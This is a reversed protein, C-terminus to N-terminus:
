NGCNQFSNTLGIWSMRLCFIFKHKIQLSFDNRLIICLNHNNRNKGWLSCYTDWKSSRLLLIQRSSFRSNVTCINSVSPYICSVEAGSIDEQNALNEKIDTAIQSSNWINQWSLLFIKFRKRWKLVKTVTNHDLNWQRM